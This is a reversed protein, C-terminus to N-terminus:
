KHQRTSNTAAHAHTHHTSVAQPEPTRTNQVDNVAARVRPCSRCCPSGLLGLHQCSGSLVGWWWQCGRGWGM